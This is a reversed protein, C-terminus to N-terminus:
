FCGEVGTLHWCDDQGYGDCAPELCVSPEPPDLEEVRALNIEVRAQMLANFESEGTPDLYGSERLVEAALLLAEHYDTLTVLGKVKAATEEIGELVSARAAKTKEDRSM